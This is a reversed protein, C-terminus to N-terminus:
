RTRSGTYTVDAGRPISFAFIKDALGVNEKFNSFRFTSRTGQKDAATLVRIQLTTRDVVLQLWDYDRQSLKPQLKLSYTDPTGGDTYTVTFDRPLNGKGTLFLVATTAEDEAPVPSVIVQKDAPIHMYMNRGDSVFVKEEPQKYIWRMRGPKKVLVTGQEVLKRRLVGSEAEQVFDASFDRVADYKQQLAAAVEAAPPAPAQTSAASGFAVALLLAGPITRMSGEAPASRAWTILKVHRALRRWVM